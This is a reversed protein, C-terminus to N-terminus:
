KDPNIVIPITNTKDESFVRKDYNTILIEKDLYKQILIYNKKNINLQEKFVLKNKNEYFNKKIEKFTHDINNIGKIKINNDSLCYFKSSIFVADEYTETWTIDGLKENKKNTDYGAFISDTDTYYLEGGDSVVKQLANNLRIRSKSSIIAAYAINRKKNTEWNNKKDLIKKSKETKKISIIYSNGFVSINIVDTTLMYVELESKSHCIIYIFDEENLAFSGYLGNNMNKGLTNYYIGKKRIETFYEVFDKFIYEEKEYLLSSYHDIIECKNNKIANILEEYWYRGTIIGNPFLLKNTKYPLFPLYDNIKLKVSHFGCNNVDLNKNSFFKKGLPFKERMSQSHMGSFDFYHIIKNKPNGFVECRGGCYSEKIYEHEYNNNKNNDIDWKDFMKIYIKYSISSFSYSKQIINKNYSDIIRIIEKLVKQVIEVDRICYEITKEKLNFNINEKIYTLYDNESNFFNKNPILGNYDLNDKTVFKYPFVDKPYNLLEGIKKVSIPLIKFSCRITIEHKIFFIKIWYINRDRIFIDFLIDKNKLQDLILLGDFNINHTYLEIANTTSQECIKQLFDFVLNDTKWFTYLTNELSVCICYPIIKENFTYTEIDMVNITRM